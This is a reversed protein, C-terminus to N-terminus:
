EEDKWHRLSEQLVIFYNEKRKEYEADTEIPRCRYEGKESIDSPRLVLKPEEM